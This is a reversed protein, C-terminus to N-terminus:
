KIKTIYIDDGLIYDNTEGNLLYMKNFALNRNIKRPRWM